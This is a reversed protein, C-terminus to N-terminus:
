VFRSFHNNVTLSLSKWHKNRNNRVHIMSGINENIFNLATITITKDTNDPKALYIQKLTYQLEKM